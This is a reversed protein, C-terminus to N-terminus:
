LSGGNGQRVPPSSGALAARSLKVAAQRGSHICDPVGIGHYAAGAIQLGPYSQLSREIEKVRSLHGLNYQPMGRPWRKVATLDPESDITLTQSIEQRAQDILFEDPRDLIWEQGARGLFVRLLAAASPARHAFKTSSWTCALPLRDEASPIVYGYGSLQRRIRDDEFALNVTATSAYEIEQLLGALHSDFGSLLDATVFAPTALILGAFESQDGAQTRVSYGRETRGISDIPSTTRLEVGHATLWAALADVLAQMGTRPANFLSRRPKGNSRRSLRFRGLNLAGRTVSGVEREWQTLIPFTAEISLQSGDGAYIGSMMPEVIHDYLERGFRRIIFQEISQPAHTDSLRVLPELGARLKGWPSLLPTRVLASLSTPVMMILGEPLKELRDKHVIYVDRQEPNTGILQDTIGLESCLETAWPKTTLFADPGLELVYDGIRATEIKGGLRDSAEFLVVESSQGTSLSLQYAAALGAIGGGVVAFRRDTRM